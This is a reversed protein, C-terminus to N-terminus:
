FQFLSIFKNRHWFKSIIETRENLLNKQNARAIIYKETIGIVDEQVVDTHEPMLLLVGSQTIIFRKRKLTGIHKCFKKAAFNNQITITAFSSIKVVAM